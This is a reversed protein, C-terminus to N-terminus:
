TQYYIYDNDLKTVTLQRFCIKLESM